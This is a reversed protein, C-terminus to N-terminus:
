AGMMQRKDAVIKGLVGLMLVVEAWVEYGRGQRWRVLSDIIESAGKGRSVEREPEQPRVVLVLRGKRM